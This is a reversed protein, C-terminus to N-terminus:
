GFRTASYPTSDILPSRGAMIDAVLKGTAAALALGRHGHGFALVANRAGPAPGIVPLGDPTSPRPGMWSRCGTEHLDPFLIRARRLLPESRRPDPPADAAALEVIGSVRLGSQMPTVAVAAGTASFPVALEIGSAPFAVHYGREAALPVRAGLRAALGGSWAGAALVVAAAPHRACDTVVALIQGNALEFDRVRERRIEGGSRVLHEALWLCLRKPDVAFAADRSYLGRAFAPGVAPILRRIAMADLEELTIGNRRRLENGRGAARFAAETEYLYLWGAQRLLEAGGRERLLENFCALAHRGLTALAAAAADVRKPRSSRWRLMLWRRLSPLHTWHVTLPGEPDRLHRAVKRLLGPMADPVIQGGSILGSNGFSCGDGPERPDLMVVRKGDRQLYLACCLGVVGAGIVIQCDEAM